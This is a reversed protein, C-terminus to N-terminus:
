LIVRLIILQYHLQIEIIFIQLKLKLAVEKIIAKRLDGDSLTGLLKKNQAVILCKRGTNNLRYIANKVTVNKGVILKKFNSKM